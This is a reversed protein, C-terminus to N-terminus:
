DDNYATSNYKEKLDNIKKEIDLTGRLYERLLGELHYDWLKKFREEETGEYCKLKLFYSAGIHYATSLGEIGESGNDTKKCIADNLNRMRQKAHSVLKEDGLCSLMETNESALVEVFAFRRRFAFDMSEVSRDIDNMTGIIYVNSPVFFGDKFCDDSDQKIINQYQTTVRGCPGRYGPDISFFLEGFIKSVEGRNIEDIIFVYNSVETKLKYVIAFLVSDSFQWGDTKLITHVDTEDNVNNAKFLREIDDLYIVTDENKGQHKYQTSITIYDKSVSKILLPVNNKYTKLELGPKLICEKSHLYAEKCFKKFVGDTLQFGVESGGKDVPRLGEVFDTYDYSPHFQVFGVHEKFVPDEDIDESYPKNLIIQAAIEKAMYTKGTGPAGTLIINKNAKLLDTYCNMLRSQYISSYWYKIFDWNNASQFTARPFMGISWRINFKNFFLNEVEQDKDESLLKVRRYYDFWADKDNLQNNGKNELCESTIEVLCLPGDHHILVIDGRKATNRFVNSQGGLGIVGVNKVLHLIRERSWSNKDNPHLQMQWFNM